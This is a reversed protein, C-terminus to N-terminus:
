KVWLKIIRKTSKKIKVSEDIRQNVVWIIKNKSLLVLQKKKETSKIKIETLFDSITKTGNLGIPKFIDGNDWKRITLPFIIKDGDIFEVNKQNSFDIENRDVETALFIKGDIEIESNLELNDDVIEYKKEIKLQINISDRERTAFLNKSLDIKQGVQLFFLSKLHAIDKFTTKIFFYKAISAKALVGFLEDTNHKLLILDSIEVGLETYKVFEAEISQAYSSIIRNSENLIESFKFVNLDLAPNIREKLKPIIENRLFNRSFDNEFNSKDTRFSINNQELYALIDEKSTTLLPRIIKGRMIPIGSVGELGSGRFLNLLMTETNDNLNHATVIKTANIKESYDNLKFYRVDRATEEISKKLKPALSKVDVRKSIFQIEGKECYEKCFLEDEDSDNERLLHNIHLASVEIQYKKKYKNFFHLAFISDAGGSLAILLRDGKQVLKYKNIFNIINQEIKGNM